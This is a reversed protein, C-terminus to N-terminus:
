SFCQGLVIFYTRTKIKRSVEFETCVNSVNGDMLITIHGYKVYLLKQAHQCFAFITKGHLTM